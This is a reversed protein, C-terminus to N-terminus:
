ISSALYQIKHVKLIEKNMKYRADLEGIENENRYESGSSDADV